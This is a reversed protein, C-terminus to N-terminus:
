QGMRRAIGERRARAPSQETIECGRAARRELDDAAAIPGLM